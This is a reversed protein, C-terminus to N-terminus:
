FFASSTGQQCWLTDANLDLQIKVSKDWQMKKGISNRYSINSRGGTGWLSPYYTLGTLSCIRLSSKKRFSIQEVSTKVLYICKTKDYIYFHIELVSNSVPSFLSCHLKSVHGHDPKYKRLCSCHQSTFQEKIETLMEYDVVPSVSELCGIIFM